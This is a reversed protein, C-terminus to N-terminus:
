KGADDFFSWNDKDGGNELGNFRCEQCAACDPWDNTHACYCCEDDIM